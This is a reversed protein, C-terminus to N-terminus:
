TPVRLMVGEPVDGVTVMRWLAILLKRALAVIMPKRAGKGSATRTRYWQALASDPQFVLFRWALQVMGRRVRPNGARSLGKERRRTGSEEPAGTLGAYRAVARRDRLDRSLIEHVLMDATEIGIGTIRTLTRVMVQSSQGTPKELEGLRAAEIEKIQGTVLTLRAMERRLEAMTNPPVPVGEPTRLSELHDVANRLAPRFGRIGLRALASKLRNTIRVREGVLAERERSPRRADEEDLTPIAAMGCHDPEGRLWGLFARKLLETDLRDTKARRHERSVAVSSPHIVYAEVDRARLWRALWFGDRGAEFAVAIRSIRRGTRRAEDRWRHLLELLQDEEPALKKLPHREVGPVIGAVLWSSKSMEIVAILTSDQLLINISKRLDNPQPMPSEM